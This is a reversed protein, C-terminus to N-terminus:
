NRAQAVSCYLSEVQDAVLPWSFRQVSARAQAGLTDRLYDNSLLLEIREAFPEPCRWPVLYGNVGDVVTESLGGVRSAVVPTGCALAEAAVLGFSEYHSPVICVDAASYFPALRDQKVTGVFTVMDAIGLERALARLREIDEDEEVQGGVVLLRLGEQDELCALARLLLDPGKLPQVRGVYLLIRPDMIGLEARALEKDMPKFFEMDVGCPIVRIKHSPAGYYDIMNKRDHVSVAIVQDASELTAKESRIRLASEREGPLARVKAEGLTHFSAIHPLHHQYNLLSVAEGSLWYHSHYLDYSLGHAQQFSILNETFEPLLPYISSKTENWEGAKIHVVRANPGLEVVQPDSPDHCRTFVDVYIGRFGLERALQLLYVNMGGTDREGLRALPCGHVSIVAVRLGNDSM